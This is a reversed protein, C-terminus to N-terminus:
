LPLQLIQIAPAFNNRAFARPPHHLQAERALRTQESLYFIGPFIGSKDYYRAIM